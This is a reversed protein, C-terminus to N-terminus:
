HNNLLRDWWHKRKSTQKLTSTLLTASLDTPVLKSIIWGPLPPTKAISCSTGINNPDFVKIFSPIKTDDTYVIGCYDENHERRLLADLENIASKLADGKLLDIPPEDGIAYIYWGTKHDARVADWLKDLQKWKLIGYFKGKYVHEFILEAIPDQTTEQTSASTM